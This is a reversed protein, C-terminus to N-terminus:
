IREKVERIQQIREQAMKIAITATSSNNKDSANFIDTCVSYINDVMAMVHNYNYGNMESYVNILGGSNILFDPAYLIDKEKLLAGHKLEDALQNNAYGAIIKCKLKEITEDNIIAGLACPAFVDMELQYIKDPAVSKVKYTKVIHKIKEQNIDTVTITAGEKILAQLLYEGVHGLGQIAVRKGKLSDSGYQHKLSAKMGVLVGKATIPSPDGSGGMYEPVGVVHSTEMRIFEMDKTTTGVDEATIYKGGLNNVFRGFRRMLRESKLQSSNGIIIAKGGGLNLGSIAAKYSMGRSLRLADLLATKESSYNWMRCGGLAPGLTTDHIAIISKLGTKKDSCFMVQEHDNLLMNSIIDSSEIINKQKNM